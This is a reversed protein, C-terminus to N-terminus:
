RVLLPRKFVPCRGCAENPLPSRFCFNQHPEGRSLSLFVSSMLEYSKGPIRLLAPGKICWGSESPKSKNELFHFQKRSQIRSDKM